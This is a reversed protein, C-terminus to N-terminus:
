LGARRLTCHPEHRCTADDSNEGSMGTIYTKFENFKDDGSWFEAGFEKKGHGLLTKIKEKGALITKIDEATTGNHLLFIGRQSPDTEVARWYRPFTEQTMTTFDAAEPYHVDNLMRKFNKNFEDYAYFYVEAVDIDGSRIETTTYTCRSAYEPLVMSKILANGLTSKGAKELGVIAVTFERSKLKDLIKKNAVQLIKLEEREEGQIVLEESDAKFIEDFIRDANDLKNIFIQKSEEWDSM